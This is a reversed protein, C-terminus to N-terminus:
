IITESNKIHLQFLLDDVVSSLDALSTVAAFNYFDPRVIVAEVGRKNFYDEYKGHLDYVVNNNDEGSVHVFSMGIQELQAIQSDSLVSRPDTKPSIITWGQTVVDDFRGVNGQYKVFGQLSLEGVPSSIEHNLNNHLIGKTLIPMDPFPPVNGSLFAQDRAEVEKEDSICIIKGLQIAMQVLGKCHDYREVTYSELLSKEAENRLVLDLKWALNKADRIGTCMGQGMFPPTVHAADGILFINDKQWTQAINSSFRYVAKRILTGQEPSIWERLLSKIKEDDLLEEKTEGPLLMFEFRIHQTGLRSIVTTPRKPDCVQYAEPLHSLILPDNPLIDVVLFDSEFGLNDSQIGLKNRTFSNAGDAGILYRARVTRTENTPAWQGPAHVVGKRLTVEVYDDLEIFNEAVWGQNVEVTPYSKVTEDLAQEVEPQYMLYGNEWGSIDVGGYPIRLLVDRNGNVWLYNRVPVLKEELKEAFGIDQFIRMIEHDFTAARPLNFTEPWREFVAVNHGAKGLLAAMTQGVPGYGIQVVDFIENEM